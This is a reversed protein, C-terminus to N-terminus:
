IRWFNSSCSYSFQLFNEGRTYQWFRRSSEFNSCRVIRQLSVLHWESTSIDDARCWKLRSSTSVSVCCQGWDQQRGIRCKTKFRAQRPGAVMYNVSQRRASDCSFAVHTESRVQQRNQQCPRLVVCVMLERLISLLFRVISVKMTVVFIQFHFVLIWWPRRSWRWLSRNSMQARCVDGASDLSRPLDHRSNECHMVHRFLWSRLFMLRSSAYDQERSIKARAGLELRM